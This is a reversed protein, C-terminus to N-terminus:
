TARLRRLFVFIVGVVLVGAILLTRQVDNVSARIMVSRDFVTQLHVSTPLTERFKPLVANVGDVMKIINAGAQRSVAVLIAQKGQYMSMSFPNEVGNIVHA